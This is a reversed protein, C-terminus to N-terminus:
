KEQQSAARRQLRGPPWPEALGCGGPRQRPQRRAPAAPVRCSLWGAPQTLLWATLLRRPSATVGRPTRRRRGRAGRWM